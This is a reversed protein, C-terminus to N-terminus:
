FFFDGFSEVDPQYQPQPRQQRKEPVIIDNIEHVIGNTAIADCKTVGANAIKPRRERTIRLHAGNLTEISRMFPWKTPIIGACCVVDNVIHTKVLDELESKDKTLTTQWDAVEEFVDNKPVLLTYSDSANTLISSLNAARVLELFKSYMPNSELFELLNLKPAELPKDVQHLVSGCSEDDFHVLRACNVTARNMVNSFLAHTSYLNVRVEPGAITPLTTDSLDCTKTMPQVVHYKLFEILEANNRLQEPSEELLQAWKSDQLAKDTPAFVTVNDMDDFSNDLGAAELLRKFITVNKEEMLTSLPLASMTPLITDIVHLVGNTGMIDADIIKAIGNIIVPQEGVLDAVESKGASSDSRNFRMAEGLVNYATTKAGPISAVSCFTLDLIHNKLINAACGKGEKLARRLHSDVKDFADDTPVFITVPKEGELLENLKTTELVTRMISMDARERILDMVNKTVPKMVGGLTHIMGLDSLKDHKEIPVCNATFRYPEDGLALPVEFTNIRISQDPQQTKLLQDNRLDYLSIEGDVIHRKYLNMMTGDAKPEVANNESQMQELYDNFAADLPMFITVNKKGFVDSIGANKATAVFEKAGMDVATEDISKIEMKECPTAFDANRPRGYGHCCQRTVTVTKRKGNQTLIRTCVYKNHKEVCSNLSIQYQGFISPRVDVVESVGPAIEEDSTSDAKSDIVKEDEEKDICVNPGKWWQQRPSGGFGFGVFPNFIDSGFPFTQQFFLGPGQNGGNVESTVVDVDFPKDRLDLTGARAQQSQRQQQQELPVFDTDEDFNRYVLNLPNPNAFNKWYQSYGNSAQAHPEVIDVIQTRTDVAPTHPPPM